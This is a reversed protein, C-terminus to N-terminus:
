LPIGEQELCEKLKQRLRFLRGALRNPTTRGHAALTKLDDGFWYRRVFLIRDDRPLSSLWRCIVETLFSTEVADEATPGGSVCESLESLLIHGGRKRAHNKNWLNISLNRVIRGLYALLSDPRNPPMSEWARQYTDNVCEESDEHSSLINYSIRHLVSGYQQSSLRIAEPDRNWYLTIIQQDEM